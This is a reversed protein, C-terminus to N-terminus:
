PDSIPVHATLVFVIVTRENHGQMVGRATCLLCSLGATHGATGWTGKEAACLM